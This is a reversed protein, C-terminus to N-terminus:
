FRGLVVTLPECGALQRVADFGGHDLAAIAQHMEPFALGLLHKNRFDAKPWLDILGTTFTGPKYGGPENHHGLLHRAAEILNVSPKPHQNKEMGMM